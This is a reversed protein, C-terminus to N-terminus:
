IQPKGYFGGESSFLDSLNMERILIRTPADSLYAFAAGSEEIRAKM